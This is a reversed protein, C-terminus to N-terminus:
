TVDKRIATASGIGALVIGYALLILVGGWWPLLTVGGNTEGSRQIASALSQAAEGPMWTAVSPLAASIIPLVILEIALGLVITLVQNKLLAGLGAGYIAYLAAAALFGLLLHYQGLMTSISGPSAAVMILGTVLAGLAASVGVALGAVLAAMLKSGVVLTRKPQTLFTATVTKHRYEGTVILVGVVFAFPLAISGFISLSDLFWKPSGHIIPNLNNRGGPAFAILAGLGIVLFFPIAVLVYTTKVTKLKQLEALFSRILSNV